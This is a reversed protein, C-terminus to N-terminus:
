TNSTAETKLADVINKWKLQLIDSVRIGANYFSFLFANKVHWILTNEPLDLEEITQIEELTLRDKQPKGLKLKFSFFPNESQKILGEKLGRYYIARITRFNGHITNLGNGKNELYTKFKTLFNLDIEQFTLDHGDLFEELKTSVTKYKKYNGIKGTSELDNILAKTYDMFSEVEPNILRQKISAPTIVKDENEIDEVISKAQQIRNAIYKNIKSHLSHNQRVYQNNKPNPNFQNSKISYPLVIRTHKRKVTIRFLLKHENTGKVKSSNLEINYSAM